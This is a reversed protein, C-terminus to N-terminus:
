AALKLTPASPHHKLGSTASSYEAHSAGSSLKRKNSKSTVSVAGTAARSEDHGTSHFVALKAATGWTGSLDASFASVIPAALQASRGLQSNEVGGM